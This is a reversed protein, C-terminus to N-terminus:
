VKDSATKVGRPLIKVDKSCDAIFKAAERPYFVNEGAM